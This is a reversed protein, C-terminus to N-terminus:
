QSRGTELNIVFFARQGADFNIVERGLRVADQFPHQRRLERRTSNGKSVRPAVNGYM